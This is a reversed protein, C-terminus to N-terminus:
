KDGGKPLEKPDYNITFSFEGKLDNEKKADWGYVNRAYLATAQSNMSKSKVPKGYKNFETQNWFGERNEEEFLERSHALGIKVAESFDPYEKIWRYVTDETVLLHGALAEKTRGKKMYEYAEDIMWSPDYKKPRGMWTKTEEPRKRKTM